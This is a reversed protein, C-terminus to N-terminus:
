ETNHIDAIANMFIEETADCVESATDKVKRVGGYIGLNTSHINIYDFTDSTYCPLFGNSSFIIDSCHQILAISLM